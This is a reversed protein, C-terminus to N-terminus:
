LVSVATTGTSSQGAQQMEHQSRENRHPLEILPQAVEHSYAPYSKARQRSVSHDQAVSQSKDMTPTPVTLKTAESRVTNFNHGQSLLLTTHTM